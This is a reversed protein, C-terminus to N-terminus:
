GIPGVTAIFEASESFGIMIEGRTVGAALQGIWYARGDADPARGLVNQYVLDVFQADTTAGYTDVFEASGAFADSVVILSVGQAREGTWYDLGGQDPERRFYALYLRYVEPVYASGDVPIPAPPAPPPAIPQPAAAPANGTGTIAIFEASESFAVMLQGRTVGAALQGIWYARGGADPARGLVNQYVLDVFQGDDVNGYTAVFEASGAFVDSIQELTIGNRAQGTWYDLGGQDPQRNFYARYLRVIQAEVVDAPTVGVGIDVLVSESPVGATTLVTLLYTGPTVDAGTAPLTARITDGDVTFALDNIRQDMNTSHTVSGTKVLTVRGIDVPTDVALNVASGPFLDTSSIGTIAPRVTAGGAAAYLYDPAFIEATTNAVPGPAGGGAVLVRGDPLLLSTSHYLRADIGSSQVEWTGTAPDWIEAADVQQYAALPANYAAGYQYNSAGGTALIRGDPLLTGDVWDRTRHPAPVATVVPAPGNADIIVATNYEGGFHLIRGPEFMVATAGYGWRDQGLQGAPTIATLNADLYYMQGLADIGFLRGDPLVFHHPYYWDIWSTDLHELLQAGGSTTWLEPHDEGGAGGQVYISGDPLVTGTAYWRARSMGPLSSLQGTAPDIKTIDPNGLNNTSVGTWNDGGFMVLEGTEAVNLQLNCFLDTPTTNPLTAHGAAASTGPTWIDYIFQGTQIGNGDTGYTVVRGNVDLAAHVAILPWNELPGWQGSDAPIDDGDPPPLAGAPRGTTVAALGVSATLVALLSAM